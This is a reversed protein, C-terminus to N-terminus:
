ADFSASFCLILFVRRNGRGVCTDVFPCHHDLDVICSDCQSCHTAYHIRVGPGHAQASRTDITQALHCGSNRMIPSLNKEQLCTACMRSRPRVCRGGKAARTLLRKDVSHENEHGNISGYNILTGISKM